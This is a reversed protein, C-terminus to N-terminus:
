CRFSLITLDNLSIWFAAIASSCIFTNRFHKSNPEQSIRRDLIFQPNSFCWFEKLIQRPKLCYLRECCLCVRGDAKRFLQLPLAYTYLLTTTIVIYMFVSFFENLLRTCALNDQFQLCWFVKHVRVWIANSTM